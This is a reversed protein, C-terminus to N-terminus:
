ICEHEYELLNSTEVDTVPILIEVIVNWIKNSDIYLYGQHGKTIQYVHYGGLGSRGSTASYRGRAIYDGLSFGKKFPAGNNAVRIVLYPKSEYQELSLSIEVQNEDRRRKNFGHREANTLIADLAVKMLKGDFRVIQNAGINNNFSLNFYNGSYNYWAEQYHKVYEVIDLAKINFMDDSIATNSYEIVRKIYEFNDKLDKVKSLYDHSDPTMRELDYIISDMHAQPTGLMHELDSINTKVGLRKADAEQEEKMKAAHQQSLKQIIENQKELSDVVIQLSMYNSLPGYGTKLVPNNALLYVLYEPSVKDTNVEMVKVNGSCTFSETGTYIAFNPISKVGDFYLIYSKGESVEVLKKITSSRDDDRPVLMNKNLIVDIIDRSFYKTPFCNHTDSSTISIKRVETFLEGLLEVEQGDELEELGQNYLYFNLNYDYAMIEQVNTKVSIFESEYKLAKVFRDYDFRRLRSSDEMFYSSADIIKVPDDANRNSKCVFLACPISTGYLLKEPLIILTDLYNREVLYRRLEYHKQSYCVNLSELAVVIKAHNVSFARSFLLTEISDKIVFPENDFADINQPFFRLNFPPCSVVADFCSRDWSYISDNCTICLDNGYHAECIVRALLFTRRVVDQGKFRINKNNLYRVISASGCFPDYVTNADSENVYHAVLSVVESPTFFEGGSRGINSAEFDNLSLLTEVYCSDFVERPLRSLENYLRGINLYRLDNSVYDYLETLLCDYDYGVFPYSNDDMPIEYRKHIGYLVYVVPLYIETVQLRGRLLNIYNYVLSFLENKASIEMSLDFLFHFM